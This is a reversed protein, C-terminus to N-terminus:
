ASAPRAPGLAAALRDIARLRCSGATYICRARLDVAAVAYSLQPLLGRPARLVGEFPRTMEPLVAVYLRCGWRRRGQLIRAASVMMRFAEVDAEDGRHFGKILVRESSDPLTGVFDFLWFWSSPKVALFRQVLAGRIEAVPSQAPRPPSQAPRSPAGVPASPRAFQSSIFQRYQQDYARRAAPNGLTAYATNLKEAITRDGGHDPHHRKMLTRYAARIVAEDATPDVQLTKYLALAHNM